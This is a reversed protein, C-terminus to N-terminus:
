KFNIIIILIILLLYFKLEEQGKLGGTITVYLEKVVM